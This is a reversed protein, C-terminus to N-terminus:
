RLLLFLVFIVATPISLALGILSLRFTASWSELATAVLEAITQVPAKTSPTAMIEGKDRAQPAPTLTRWPATRNRRLM